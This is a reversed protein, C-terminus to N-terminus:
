RKRMLNQVEDLYLGIPDETSADRPRIKVAERYRDLDAPAGTGRTVEWWNLYDDIGDLKAALTAREADLAALRPLVDNTKGGMVDEILQRHANAIPRFLPHIRPELARLHLWIDKLLRDHEGRNPLAIVDALSFVKAPEGSKPNAAVEALMAQALRRDSEGADLFTTADPRAMRAVQLAWWKDLARNSEAMEQFHHRIQAAPDGDFSGFDAMLRQFRVPGNEMGLLTLVLGCASADYAARSGSPLKDPSERLLKEVSFARGRAFVMSAVTSQTPDEKYKMATAVGRELWVPVLNGPRIEEPNRGRIIDAVLLCRIVATRFADPTAGDDLRVSIALRVTSGIATIEDLVSVKSSSVTSADFLQITIPYSVTADRGLLKRYVECTQEARAAFVRRVQVSSGLLRFQKSVSVTIGTDAVLAGDAPKGGGSPQAPASAPPASGATLTLVAAVAAATALRASLSAPLRDMMM